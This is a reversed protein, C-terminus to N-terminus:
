VAYQNPLPVNFTILVLIDPAQLLSPELSCHEYDGTCSQRHHLQGSHLAWSELLNESHKPDVASGQFRM